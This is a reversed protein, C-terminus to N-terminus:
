WNHSSYKKSYRCVDYINCWIINIFFVDKKDIIHMSLYISGLFCELLWLYSFTLPKQFCNKLLTDRRIDYLVKHNTEKRPMCFPNLYTDVGQLLWPPNVEWVRLNCGEQRIRVLPSPPLNSFCFKGPLFIDM